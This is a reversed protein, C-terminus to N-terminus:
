RRRALNRPTPAVLGQRDYNEVIDSLEDPTVGYYLPYIKIGNKLFLNLEKMPWKKTLFPRSLVVVAQDAEEARSVMENGAHTGVAMDDDFFAACNAEEIGKLLDRVFAKDEGAHSVFTLKHRPQSKETEVCDDMCQGPGTNGSAGGLGM